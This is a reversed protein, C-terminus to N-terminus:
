WWSQTLPMEEVGQAAYIKVSVRKVDKRSAIRVGARKRFFTLGVVIWNFKCANKDACMITPGVSWRRESHLGRSCRDARSDNM